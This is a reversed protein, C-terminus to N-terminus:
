CKSPADAGGAASRWLGLLSTAMFVIQQCLIGYLGSEVSFAIMVINALLFCIWGHPAYKGNIAVLFAGAMGLISGIWEFSLNSM